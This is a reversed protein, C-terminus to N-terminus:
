RRFAACRRKGEDFEEDDDGDDGDEGPEGEGRHCSDLFLTNAVSSAGFDGGNRIGELLESIDMVGVGRASGGIEVCVDGRKKIGLIGLGVSAKEDIGVSSGIFVEGACIRHYVPGRKIKSAM